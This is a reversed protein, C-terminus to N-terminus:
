AGCESCRWKPKMAERLLWWGGFTFLVLILDGVGMATVYREHKTPQGCRPCDRRSIAVRQM